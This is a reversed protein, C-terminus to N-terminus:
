STGDSIEVFSGWFSVANCRQIAISIRQLLFSLKRADGTIASIRRGLEVLPQSGADNISGLTEFAIPGFSM